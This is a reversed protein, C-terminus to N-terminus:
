PPPAQPAKRALHLCAIGGTLPVWRVEAFGAAGLLAALGPADPFARWSVPLWAYPAVPGQWRRAAWAGLLPVVRTFYLSFPVRVLPNPPHSLELLVARGGPRLVRAMEGLARPLDAVNRLMFGSAVVDFAGGPFPLDLANGPLLDVRESLGARAVKRRGVELMEESIDVGTVHGSSGAAAALILSLDGTGCGVDLVRDGPRVGAHRRFARQWLRWAGATMILNMADYYPAIADFLTRVFQEKDKM